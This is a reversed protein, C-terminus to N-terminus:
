PCSPTCHAVESSGSHRCIRGSGLDAGLGPGPVNSAEIDLLPDISYVTPLCLCCADSRQRRAAFVLSLDVIAAIAVLAGASALSHTQEFPHQDLSAAM